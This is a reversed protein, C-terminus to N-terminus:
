GLLALRLDHGLVTLVIYYEGELVVVSQGLLHRSHGLPVVLQALSVLGSRAQLSLGLTALFTGGSTVAALLQLGFCDAVKFKLIHASVLDWVQFVILVRPEEDHLVIATGTLQQGSWLKVVSHPLLLHLNILRDLM